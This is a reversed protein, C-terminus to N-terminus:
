EGYRVMGEGALLLSEIEHTIGLGKYRTRWIEGNAAISEPYSPITNELLARIMRMTVAHTVVLITDEDSITSQQLWEFFVRVRDAVTKYSEGGGEPVWEWRAM